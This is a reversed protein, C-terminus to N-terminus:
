LTNQSSQKKQAIAYFMASINSTTPFNVLIFDLLKLPMLLVIVIHLILHHLTKSRFSFLTAMFESFVWGLASAVGGKNGIELIEFPKLALKLGDRTWRWYDLPSDHYGLIFPVTVFILGEPKLVRHAERIAEAPNKMHELGTEIIIRDISDDEFPLDCADSVIDVREFPFIDVNIFRDSTNNGSAINVVIENEKVSYMQLFDDVNKGSVILVPYLVHRLLEYLLPKKKLFIKFNNILANGDQQLARLRDELIFFYKGEEHKLPDRKFRLIHNKITLKSPSM